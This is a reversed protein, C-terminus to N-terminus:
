SLELSVAHITETRRDPAGGAEERPDAAKLRSTNTASRSLAQEPSRCTGGERGKQRGKGAHTCDGLHGLFGKELSAEQSGTRAGLTGAM